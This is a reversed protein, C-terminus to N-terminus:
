RAPVLPASQPALSGRLFKLGRYQLNRVAQPTAGLVDAVERPSLDFLYRLVLVQRQSVPLRKLSFAVQADSVDDFRGLLDEEIAHPRDALEAPARPECRRRKRLHDIARNRTIRLLLVRFPREPRSEYRPLLSLARLFVDQALDEAEHEDQLIFSGYGYVLDYHRLYLNSFARM